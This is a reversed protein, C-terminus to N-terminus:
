PQKLGYVAPTGNDQLVGLTFGTNDVTYSDGSHRFMFYIEGERTVYREPNAISNDGPKIKIGAM